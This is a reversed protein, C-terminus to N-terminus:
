VLNCKSSFVDVLMDTQLVQSCRRWSNLLQLHHLGFSHLYNFWTLAAVLGRDWTTGGYCKPTSPVKKTPLVHSSQDLLVNKSLSIINQSIQILLQFSTENRGESWMPYSGFHLQTEAISWFLFFCLRSLWEGTKLKGCAHWRAQKQTAFNELHFCTPLSPSFHHRCRLVKIGLISLVCNSCM